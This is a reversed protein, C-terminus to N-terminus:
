RRPPLPKSSDLWSLDIALNDASAERGLLQRWSEVAKKAEQINELFSMESHYRRWRGSEFLETLHDLRQEALVCWREIIERGRALDARQAMFFDALLFVSALAVRRILQDSGSIRHFVKINDLSLRTSPAATSLFGQPRGGQGGLECGVRVLRAHVM